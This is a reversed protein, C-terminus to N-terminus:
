PDIRTLESRGAALSPLHGGLESRWAQAAAGLEKKEPAGRHENDIYIRKIM